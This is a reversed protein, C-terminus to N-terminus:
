GRLTEEVVGQLGHFDLYLQASGLNIIEFTELQQLLLRAQLLLVHGPAEPLDLGLVPLAHLLYEHLQGAVSHRM